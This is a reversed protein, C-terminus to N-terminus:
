LGWALSKWIFADMFLPGSDYFAWSVMIGGLAGGIKRFGSGKLRYGIDGM